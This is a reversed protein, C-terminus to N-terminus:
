PPTESSWAVDKTSFTRKELDVRIVRLIMGSDRTRPLILLPDPLDRSIYTSSNMEGASFL